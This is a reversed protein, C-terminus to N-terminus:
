RITRLIDAILQGESKIAYYGTVTPQGVGAELKFQFMRGGSKTVWIPTQYEKGSILIGITGIQRCSWNEGECFEQSGAWPKESGITFGWVDAEGSGAGEWVWTERQNFTGAKTRLLNPYKISIGLRDVEKKNWKEAEPYEKGVIDEGGNSEGIEGITIKQNEGERRLGEITVRKGTMSRVTEWNDIVPIVELRFIPWNKDQNKWQYDDLTLGFKDGEGRSSNKVLIGEVRVKQSPLRIRLLREAVQGGWNVTLMLALVGAGIIGLAVVVTKGGPIKKM